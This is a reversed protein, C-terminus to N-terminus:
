PSPLGYVRVVGASSGAALYRGDASFAIDTVSGATVTFRRLENGTAPDWLRVTGDAGGSALLNTNPSFALNTIGVSGGDGGFFKHGSLEAVLLGTVADWIVIDANGSNAALWLGDVSAVLTYNDDIWFEAPTTLTVPATQDFPWLVTDPGDGAPTYVVGLWRGGGELIEGLRKDFVHLLTGRQLDRVVIANNNGCGGTFTGSTQSVRVPFYDVNPCPIAYLAQGSAPNTVHVEGVRYSAVLLGDAPSYDLAVVSGLSDDQYYDVGDFHSALPAPRHFLPTEDIAWSWLAGTSDGALVTPHGDKDTPGFSLAAFAPSYPLTSLDNPAAINVVLVVAGSDAWAVQSGDPSFALRRMSSGTPLTFLVQPASTDWILLQQRGDDGPAPLSFIASRGNPGPLFGDEPSEGPMAVWEGTALRLAQLGTETMVLLASGDASYAVSSGGDYTQLLSGTNADLLLTVLYNSLALTRGDPSFAMDAWWGYDTRTFLSEGTTANVMELVYNPDGGGPYDVGLLALWSGGPSVLIKRIGAPAAEQERIVTGTAVDLWRITDEAVVILQGNAASFAVHNAPLVYHAVLALTGTSYLDVGDIAAVALLRGDPSWAVDVPRGNGFSAVEEIQGANDPSLALPGATPPTYIPPTWPPLTPTPSNTPRVTASPRPLLAPPRDTETPPLPTATASPLATHTATPLFTYTSTAAQPPAACAALVVVLGLLLVVRWHKM